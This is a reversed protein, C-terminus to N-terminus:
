SGQTEILEGLDADVRVSRRGLRAGRAFADRREALAFCEASRCVYLGRGPLTSRDDRVLRWGDEGSAAAFRALEPKPAVCGCGLCRRHPVHTGPM